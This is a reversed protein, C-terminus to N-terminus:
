YGPSDRAEWDVFGDFYAFKIPHGTHGLREKVHQMGCAGPVSTQYYGMTM